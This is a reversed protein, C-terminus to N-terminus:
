NGSEGERKVKQKDGGNRQMRKGSFRVGEVENHNLHHGMNVQNGADFHERAVIENNADASNAHSFIPIDDSIIRKDGTV